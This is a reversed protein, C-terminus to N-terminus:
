VGAKGILPMPPESGPNTRESDASGSVKNATGPPDSIEPFCFGAPVFTPYPGAGFPHPHSPGTADDYTAM